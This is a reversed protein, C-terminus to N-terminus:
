SYESLWKIKQLLLNSQQVRILYEQHSANFGECRLKLEVGEGALILEYTTVLYTSTNEERFGFQLLMGPISQLVEGINVPKSGSDIFISSGETWDSNINGDLFYQNIYDPGTLVKWVKSPLAHVTIQQQLNTKSMNNAPNVLLRLM